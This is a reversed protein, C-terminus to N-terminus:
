IVLKGKISYVPVNLQNTALLPKSNSFLINQLINEPYVLHWQLSAWTPACARPTARGGFRKRERWQECAKSLLSGAQRSNERQDIYSTVYTWHFGTNRELGCFCRIGSRNTISIREEWGQKWSLNRRIDCHFFGFGADRFCWMTEVLLGQTESSPSVNLHTFLHQPGTHWTASLPCNIYPWLGSDRTVQLSAFRNM